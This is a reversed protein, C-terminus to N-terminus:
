LITCQCKQSPEAAETLERQLQDLVVSIPPTVGRSLYPEAGYPCRFPHGQIAAAVFTHYCVVEPRNAVETSFRDFGYPTGFLWRGMATAMAEQFPWPDRNLVMTREWLILRAAAIAGGDELQAVCIAFIATKWRSLSFQYSCRDRLFHWIRDLDDDLRDHRYDGALRVEATLPLQQELLEFPRLKVLIENLEERFGLALLYEDEEDVVEEHTKQDLGLFYDTIVQRGLTAEPDPMGFDFCRISRTQQFAVLQSALQDVWEEPTM